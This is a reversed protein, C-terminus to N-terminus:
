VTYEVINRLWRYQKDSLGSLRKKDYKLISCVFDKSRGNLRGNKLLQKAEEKMIEM